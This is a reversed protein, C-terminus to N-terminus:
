GNAPADGFSAVPVEEGGEDVVLQWRDFTAWNNAALANLEAVGTSLNVISYGRYRMSAVVYPVDDAVIMMYPRVNHTFAHGSFSPPDVRVSVDPMLVYTTRELETLSIPDNTGPEFVLAFTPEVNPDTTVAQILYPDGNYRPCLYFAGATLSDAKVVREIGRIM